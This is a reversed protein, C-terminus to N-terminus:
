KQETPLAHMWPAADVIAGRGVIVGDGMPEVENLTASKLADHFRGTDAVWAACDLVLEHEHIAVLQGTLFMTVTRILYKQGLKWPGGKVAKKTAM